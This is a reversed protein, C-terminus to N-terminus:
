FMGSLVAVGKIYKQFIFYVSSKQIKEIGTQNSNQPHSQPSKRGEGGRPCAEHFSPSCPKETLGEIKLGSQYLKRLTKKIWHTLRNIGIRNSNQPSLQIGAKAPTRDEPPLHFLGVEFSLGSQYLYWSFGLLQLIIAKEKVIQLSFSFCINKLFEFLGMPLPDDSSADLSDTERAQELFSNPMM